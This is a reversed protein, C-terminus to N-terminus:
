VPTDSMEHKIKHLYINLRLLSFKVSLFSTNRKM